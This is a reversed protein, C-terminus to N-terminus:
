IGWIIKKAIPLLTWANDLVGLSGKNMVERESFKSLGDGRMLPRYIIFPVPDDTHAGVSPPTAHDSTIIFATKDLNIRDLLPKMFYRDIDEIAKVKADLNRDHGPEDPGKLHVYVADCYDLLKIVKDVRIPYDKSKDKSPPSVEAMALGLLNAIGREVPMEVVAGMKFEHLHKFLPIGYPRMGADRLLIANCPLKGSKIRRKNVPHENLVNIVHEVYKNVLEATIRSKATKDMPEANMIYPDYDRVSHSFKGRREYAPDVNSVNDSLMHKNSGIIVVVRYSEAVYTKAYGSYIGLDVYELDKILEKAEDTSIDRGCRRDIIKRTKPDVTALNGRFAVEYDYRLSVGIGLAEIPGRGTYYKYPNYGLLSFVATDSEPAIGRGLIYMMGGKSKRAIEDINPKDALEYSTKVDRISDAAGDLVLYILRPVAYTNM